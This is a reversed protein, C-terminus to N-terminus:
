PNRPVTGEPPDLEIWEEPDCGVTVRSDGYFRVAFDNAARNAAVVLGSEGVRDGMIKQVRSQKPNLQDVRLSM